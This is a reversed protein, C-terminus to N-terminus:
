AEKAEIWGEYVRELRQDARHCSILRITRGRMTFVAAYCRGEVRALLLWRRETVVRRALIILHDEEWLRLAWELGVGHREKNRRSKEPDYEFREM